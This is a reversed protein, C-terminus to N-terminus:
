GKLFAVMKRLANGRHSIKNKEDGAMEAFTFDYGEPEFIPDYGFGKEGAREARINGRVIGKYQTTRGNMILTFVTRFQGKRNEVGVMKELVLDMNQENNKAEGAYRASRVGPEGNLADIELGSDESFCDLGFNEKVFRAKALSNEELTEYPEPIEDNCGIDALSKLAYKGGLMEQVERMKNLNGTAFVIKKSVLCKCKSVNSDHKKCKWYGM